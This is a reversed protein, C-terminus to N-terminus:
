DDKEMALAAARLEDQEEIWRPSGRKAYSKCDFKYVCGEHEVRWPNRYLGKEYMREAIAAFHEQFFKRDSDDFIGIM